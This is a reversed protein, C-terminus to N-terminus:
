VDVARICQRWHDMDATMAESLNLLNFDHQIVEKWSKKPRGRGRKIDGLDLSECRRVPAEAPRRRVHGFWRLRCERLKDVISTVGVKRRIDENRIKDPRTHGCMWRLMRMEAVSLKHEQAKTTPWCESGYLVIPRFDNKYFNLRGKLVIGLETM